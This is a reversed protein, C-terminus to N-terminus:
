LAMLIISFPEARRVERVIGEPLMAVRTAINPFLSIGAFSFHYLSDKNAM